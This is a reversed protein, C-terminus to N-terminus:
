KIYSITFYEKRSSIPHHCSFGISLKDEYWIDNQILFNILATMSRVWSKFPSNREIDSLKFEDSRILPGNIRYTNIIIKKANKFELLENILKTTADPSVKTIRATNSLIIFIASEILSGVINEKMSDAVLVPEFMANTINELMANTVNNAITKENNNKM